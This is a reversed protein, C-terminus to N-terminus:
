RSREPRTRRRPLKRSQRNSLTQDPVGSSRAGPAHFMGRQWRIEPPIGTLTALGGTLEGLNTLAVAHISGLHNRVRRRDHLRVRAHGADLGEVRAGMTSTYPIQRGLVISFLVVAPVPPRMAIWFSAPEVRAKIRPYEKEPM